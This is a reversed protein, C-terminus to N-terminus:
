DVAEAPHQRAREARRQELEDLKSRRADPDGGGTVASRARPTMGLEVLVATLKPALNTLVATSEIRIALKVFRQYLEPEVDTAALEDLARQVDAHVLEAEDIDHALRRALAVTAVDRPQQDLARLAKTLAPVVGPRTKPTAM